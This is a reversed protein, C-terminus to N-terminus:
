YDSGKIYKINKELKEFHEEICKKHVIGIGDDISDEDIQILRNCIECMTM